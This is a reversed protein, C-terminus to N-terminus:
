VIGGAEAKHEEIETRLQATSRKEGLKRETIVKFFLPIFFIALFTAALMGGMVGTGVSHRAGAGAGSSLVLPLVGLIFALSTMLIPRFRLRAAELAAASPSLGEQTKYLAYEVILIANKAALGLLTVLGIQFYVDNTLPGGGTVPILMNHVWIAALAGFTGFPLALLVSFPLSWREYQAALILFVMVVAMGLALGSTRSSRKEQFSSGGWDYSFDQPLVQNAIEEIIQISQGSSIGPAGQGFLKVAPLNNFRDLSDPGASYHVTALAKVPIMEGRDSRVFLEGISDPRKRYSPEASMLVQWARGFRNFDNVYFSGLTAALTNFLTTIPVGLSKAKERDVEVYLQPANARWLTQVYLLRPDTATKALFQGLVEALRQPGGDGRNQIYFEFGGANGLGLIPPPPFALVLGEKIGATKMFYEGVLQQTYVGPRDDWHKQSAFITAASNRFGGGLFDLGTFAVSYENAPNSLMAETVRQVVADTRQLTAGDPLFVAGIYYGTDEDPVLSTPTKQWLFVTFGVMGAFLIVGIAGRRIMWAVGTSYRTTVRLFWTNFWRFFGRPERHKGSGLLVVCLSPTLTLATVGSIVVAIAITVAFQRYLEGTLGGLFAVPVFVACL